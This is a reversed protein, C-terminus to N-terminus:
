EEDFRSGAHSGDCFPKNKSLGCRCFFTKRTVEKEEGSPLVLKFNGSVVLPGNKVVKISLEKEM